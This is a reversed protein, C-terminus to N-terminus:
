DAPSALHQPHNQFVPAYGLWLFPARFGGSRQQLLYVQANKIRVYNLHCFEWGSAPSSGNSESPMRVFTSPGQAPEVGATRVIRRHLESSSCGGKLRCPPIGFNGVPVLGSFVASQTDNRPRKDVRRALIFDESRM